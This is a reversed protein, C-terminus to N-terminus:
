RSLFDRILATSATVLASTAAGGGGVPGGIGLYDGHAAPVVAARGNAVLRAIELTHEPRVIDRDGSLFLTPATLEALDRESWDSAGRMLEIDLRFMREVADPDPAVRRYADVLEAPMAAPDPDAFQEWFGDVMGDRRAFGSAVIMRGVRAPATAALRMGTLCGNSFSLVDARPISLRDLVALVDTANHEPTYARDLHPTHGHGQLEVGVVLRDRALDPVVAEFEDVLGAGGHILLLPDQGDVSAGFTTSWLDLV